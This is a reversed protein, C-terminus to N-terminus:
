AHSFGHADKSTKFPFFLFLPIFSHRPSLVLGGRICLVHSMGIFVAKFGPFIYEKDYSSTSSSVHLYRATEPTTIYDTYTSGANPISICLVQPVSFAKSNFCLLGVVIM